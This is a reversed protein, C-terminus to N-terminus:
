PNFTITSGISNFGSRDAKSNVTPIFVEGTNAYDYLRCHVTAEGNGGSITTTYGMSLKDLVNQSTGAGYAFLVQTGDAMPVGLENLFRARLDWQPNDLPLTTPTSPYLWLVEAVTHNVFVGEV